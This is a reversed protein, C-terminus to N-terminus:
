FIASTGDIFKAAGRASLSGVQATPGETWAISGAAGKFAKNNLAPLLGTGGAKNRPSPVSPGFGLDLEMASLAPRQASGVMGGRRVSLTRCTPSAAGVNFSFSIESTFDAPPVPTLGVWSTKAPEQTSARPTKSHRPTKQKKGADSGVLHGDVSGQGASLSAPRSSFRPTGVPAGAPQGWPQAPPRPTATAPRAECPLPAAPAASSSTGLRSNRSSRPTPPATPPRSHTVSDPAADTAAQAIAAEVVNATLRMRQRLRGQAPSTPVGPSLAPSFQFSPGTDEPVKPAATVARITLARSKAVLQEAKHERWHRQITMCAEESAMIRLAALAAAAVSCLRHDAEGSLQRQSKATRTAATEEPVQPGDERPSLRRSFPPHSRPELDIRMPVPCDSAKLKRESRVMELEQQLSDLQAQLKDEPSVMGFMLSKLPDRVIFYATIAAAEAEMEEHTLERASGFSVVSVAEDDWDQLDNCVEADQLLAETAVTCEKSEAEPIPPESESLVLMANDAYLVEHVTEDTYDEVADKFLGVAFSIGEVVADDQEWQDFQVPLDPQCVEPVGSESHCEPLEDAVEMPGPIISVSAPADSMEPVPSTHHTGELEDEWPDSQVPLDPECVEPVGGESHCEPLEDAVETPGPIISVSVADDSMEPMLSNNHTGELEEAKPFSVAAEDAEATAVAYSDVIQAGGTSASALVCRGGPSCKKDRSLGRSARLRLSAARGGWQPGRSGSRPLPTRRVQPSQSAAHQSSGQGAHCSKVVVNSTELYESGLTAAM